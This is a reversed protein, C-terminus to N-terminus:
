WSSAVGGYTGHGVAVAYEPELDPNTENLTTYVAYSHNGYTLVGDSVLGHLSSSISEELQMIYRVDGIEGGNAFQWWSFVNTHIRTTSGEYYNFVVSANQYDCSSSVNMTLLYGGDYAAEMNSTFAFGGDVSWSTVGKFYGLYGSEDAIDVYFVHFGKEVVYCVFSEYASDADFVVCEAGNSVDPDRPSILDTLARHGGSNIHGQYKRGRVFHNEGLLKTLFSSKSPETDANFKIEGNRVDSVWDDLHIGEALSCDAGGRRRCGISVITNLCPASSTLELESRSSSIFLDAQKENGTSTLEYVMEPINVTFSNATFPLVIGVPLSVPFLIESADISSSPLKINMMDDFASQLSSGSNKSSSMTLDIDQEFSYTHSLPFSTYVNLVLDVDCSLAARAAETRGSSAAWLFSRLQPYESRQLQMNLHFEGRQSMETEMVVFIDAIRQLEVAASDAYLLRCRGGSVSYSHMNSQFRASGSVSLTADFEGSLDLTASDVALSKDSYVYVLVDVLSIGIICFVLCVVAKKWPLKNARERHTSLCYVDTRTVAIGGCRDLDKVPTGSSTDSLDM